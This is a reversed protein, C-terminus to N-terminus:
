YQDFPVIKHIQSRERHWNIRLWPRQSSMLTSFGRPLVLLLGRRYTTSPPTLPIIRPPPNRKMRATTPRMVRSSVMLMLRTDDASSFSASWEYVSITVPCWLALLRSSSSGSRRCCKENIEVGIKHVWAFYPFTIRNTITAKFLGSRFLKFITWCLKVLFPEGNSM